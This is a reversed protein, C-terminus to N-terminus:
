RYYSIGTEQVNMPLKTWLLLNLIGQHFLSWDAVRQIMEAYRMFVRSAIKQCLKLHFLHHCVFSGSRRRRQLSTNSISAAILVARNETGDNGSNDDNILSAAAVVVVESSQTSWSLESLIMTTIQSVVKSCSSSSILSMETRSSSPFPSYRSLAFMSTASPILSVIAEGATVQTFILLSPGASMCYLMRTRPYMSKSPTFNVEQSGSSFETTSCFASPLTGLGNM